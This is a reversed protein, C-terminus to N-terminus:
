PRESEVLKEVEVNFNSQNIGTIKDLAKFFKINDPERKGSTILQLV